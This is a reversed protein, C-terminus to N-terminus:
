TSSEAEQWSAPNTQFCHHQDAGRGHRGRQFTRRRLSHHGNRIDLLDALQCSHLGGAGGFTILAYDAPNIGKEVSIKRIADAMKENAIRELGTLLEQSHLLNGTKEIFTLQWVKWHQPLQM